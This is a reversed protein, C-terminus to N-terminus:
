SSKRHNSSHSAGMIDAHATKRRELQKPGEKPLCLFVIIKILSESLQAAV